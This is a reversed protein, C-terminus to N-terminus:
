HHIPNGLLLNNESVVFSYFRFKTSLHLPINEFNFLTPHIFSDNMM